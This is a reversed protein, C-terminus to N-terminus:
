RMGGGRDILSEFARPLAEGMGLEELAHRLATLTNEDLTMGSFHQVIQDLRQEAWIPTTLELGLVDRLIENSTGAKNATDLAFSAVRRDAGYRLVFVNSDPVSGVILPNHSAVIFQVRPFASMFTPLLSRQLEPHLHNEPEDIVAVFEEHQTSYMFLQWSLDVIASVGGSVADFAFTGSDTEFLVEPVEIVIRRFGLSPPMVTRLVAQYGEFTDVADQNRRVAQNGYGFTALSILAEKIKHGPSTIRANFQYRQRLENLYVTLLQERADLRTPINEVRQYFYVPRHSSIFLGPVSRQNQITPQYEAGSAAPLMVQAESGDRYRLTGIQHADNSPPQLDRDLGEWYDTFYELADKRRLPTSIFALNWGFHRNLLNLLTTKGAGNAGTLVTLNPHFRLSIESFQRWSGIFLAEFM